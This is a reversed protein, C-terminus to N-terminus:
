RWRTVLVRHSPCVRPRCQAQLVGGDSVGECEPHEAFVVREDVRAGRGVAVRRAGV